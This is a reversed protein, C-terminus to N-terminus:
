LTVSFNDDVLIMDAAEKSVDTGTIGMSIGIDSCKLAVADNVGDGTMGVVHGNSQLAQFFFFEYFSTNMKFDRERERIIKIAYENPLSGFTFTLLTTIKIELKM